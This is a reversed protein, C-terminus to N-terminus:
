WSSLTDRPPCWLRTGHERELARADALFDNWALRFVGRPAADLPRFLDDHHCPILVHPRLREGLLRLYNPTDHRLALCAILADVPEQTELGAPNLGASGQVYFSREGVEVRYALVEGQPYRLPTSPAAKGRLTLSNFLRGLPLRGHAAAVATVTMEGIAVREGPEVVRLRESPVGLRQCLEVLIRGGHIVAQPSAAAVAPLDMAHDYHAHGVFVADLDRFREAVLDARIRPRGFVVGFVGPRSVFPDFAISTGEWGLRVGAVGTWTLRGGAQEGSTWPIRPADGPFPPRETPLRTGLLSAAICALCM